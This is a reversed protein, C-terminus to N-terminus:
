GSGPRSSAAQPHSAGPSPRQVSTRPGPAGLLSLGMPTTHVPDSIITQFEGVTSIRPARWSGSVDVHLGMVATPAGTRESVPLTPHVPVCIIWKPRDPVGPKKSPPRYSGAASAHVGIDM